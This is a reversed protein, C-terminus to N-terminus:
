GLPKCAVSALAVEDGTRTNVAVCNGSKLMLDFTTPMALSHTELPSPPPPLVSFRGDSALAADNIEIKARGLAAGMESKLSAISTEDADDLTAPVPATSSQCAM